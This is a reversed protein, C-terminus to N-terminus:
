TALVGPWDGSQRAESVERRLRASTSQTHESGAQGRAAQAIGRSVREIADEDYPRPVVSTAGVRVARHPSASPGFLVVSANPHGAAFARTAAEDLDDADLVVLQANTTAGLLLAERDSPTRSVFWGSRIMLAALHMGADGGTAVVARVAEPP